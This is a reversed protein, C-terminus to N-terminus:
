ENIKAQATKWADSFEGLEDSQMGALSMLKSVYLKVIPHRNVYDTGSFDPETRIRKCVDALSIVVGSLNCADQVAVADQWDRKTLGM